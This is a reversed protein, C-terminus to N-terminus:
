VFHINRWFCNGCQQCVNEDEGDDLLALNHKLIYSDPLLTSAIPCNNAIEEALNEDLDDAHILSALPYYLSSLYNQIHMEMKRFITALERRCEQM